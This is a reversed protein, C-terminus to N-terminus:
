FYTNLYGDPEQARGILDILEDLTKELEPDPKLLLSYSAAEIWKAVDSDQFIMGYFEGKQEGSAIRFNVIANSKPVGEAEDNLISYQYPITENVIFDQIRGLLGDKIEVNQM